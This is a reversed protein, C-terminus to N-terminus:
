RLGSLQCHALERALALPTAGLYNSFRNACVLHHQGLAEFRGLGLRMALRAPQIVNGKALAIKM